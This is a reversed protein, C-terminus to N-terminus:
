RDLVDAARRGLVGRDVVDLAQRLARATVLAERHEMAGVLILRPSARPMVGVGVHEPPEIRHEVDAPGFDGLDQGRHVKGFQTSFLTM